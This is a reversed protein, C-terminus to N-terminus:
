MFTAFMPIYMLGSENTGQDRALAKATQISQEVWQRPRSWVRLTEALLRVESRTDLSQFNAGSTDNQALSQVDENRMAGPHEGIMLRMTIAQYRVAEDFPKCVAAVYEKDRCLIYSKGIRERIIHMEKLDLGPKAAFGEAPKVVHLLKAAQVVTQLSGDMEIQNM